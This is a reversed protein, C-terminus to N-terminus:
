HAGESGGADLIWLADAASDMPCGALDRVGEPFRVTMVIQEGNDCAAADWTRARMLSELRAVDASSLDSRTAMPTARDYGGDAAPLEVREVTWSAANNRFAVISIRGGKRVIVIRIAAARLDTGFRVRARLEAEIRHAATAALDTRAEESRQQLHQNYPDSLLALAIVVAALM